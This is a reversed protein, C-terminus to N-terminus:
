EQPWDEIEYGETLKDDYEGILWGIVTRIGNAFLGLTTYVGTSESPRSIESEFENNM